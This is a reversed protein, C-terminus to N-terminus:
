ISFEVQNVLQPKLACKSASFSLLLYQFARSLKMCRNEKIGERKRLEEVSIFHSLKPAPFFIRLFNSMQTDYPLILM